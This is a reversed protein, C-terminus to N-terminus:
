YYKMRNNNMNKIKEETFKKAETFTVPQSFHIFEYGIKWKKKKLEKNGKSLFSCGRNSCRDNFILSGCKKCYKM